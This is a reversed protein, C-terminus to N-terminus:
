KVRYKEIIELGLFIQREFGEKQFHLFFGEALIVSNPVVYVSEEDVEIKVKDFRKAGSILSYNFGYSNSKYHLHKSSDRKTYLTKEGCIITGLSRPFDEKHLKLKVVIIGDKEDTVIKDFGHYTERIM